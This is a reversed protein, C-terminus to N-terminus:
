GVLKGRDLLPKGDVAVTAEGLVIWSNFPCKVSGGYGQNGGIGLTVAGLEQDEVQAVGPDLAPNLGISLFSVVDRGKPAAGFTADFVPQGDTYWHNVVHGGSAEWQGGELRGGIVFSPRNAVALGEASREDVAVGVSGPPANVLNNGEKLDEPGVVGDDAVPTRGRLKVTLDSGNAGTIRVVKGTKLRGKIRAADSQIAKLDAEVSGRVLQSRWAAPSVSWLQAQADSAYGLLSRVGRLRASKARKYWDDNYGTLKARTAVPLGRFRPRDAPGPFFVYAHAKALAAWEHAGVQSWRAVDPALDLTRWYAAEDELLLMPRAGLRRAEVVCATAYPLTHSWSEIILNEGRKLHIPPGLLAEALRSAEQDSGAM